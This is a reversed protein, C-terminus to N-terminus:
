WFDLIGVRGKLDSTSTLPRPTCILALSFPFEPCSVLAPRKPEPDHKERTQNWRWSVCRSAAM